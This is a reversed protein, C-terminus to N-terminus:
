TGNLRPPIAVATQTREVGKVSQFKDLIEKLMDMDDFEIYAIIDFQGSVARAMKVGEIRLVDEAIEMLREPESIVFIYAEMQFTVQVFKCIFFCINDKIIVLAEILTSAPKYDSTM